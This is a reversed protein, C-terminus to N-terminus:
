VHVTATITLTGASNSNNRAYTTYGSTKTASSNAVGTFTVNYTTNATGIYILAMVYYSPYSNYIEFAYKGIASGSVSTIVAYPIIESTAASASSNSGPSLAVASLSISNGGSSTNTGTFL